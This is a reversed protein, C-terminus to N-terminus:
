FVINDLSRYQTMFIVIRKLNYFNHTNNIYGGLKKFDNPMYKLLGSSSLLTKAAWFDNLRIMNGSVLEPQYDHLLQLFFSEFDMFSDKACQELTPCNQPAPLDFGDFIKLKWSDGSFIISVDKNEPYFFATLQKHLKTFKLSKMDSFYLWFRMENTEYAERLATLFRDYLTLLQSYHSDTSRSRQKEINSFMDETYPYGLKEAEFAFKVFLPMAFSAAKTSRIKM